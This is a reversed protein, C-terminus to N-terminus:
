VRRDDKSTWECPARLYVERGFGAAQLFANKIDLSWIPRNKPVGLSMLQLHSSRRSVRGAIGVDGNCKDPDSYRKALQRAKETQAGDAEKTTLVWRTDAIDKSQAAM